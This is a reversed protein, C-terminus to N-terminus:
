VLASQHIPAPQTQAGDPGVQWLTHTALVTNLWCQLASLKQLLKSSYPVVRQVVAQQPELVCGRKYTKYEEGKRGLVLGRGM